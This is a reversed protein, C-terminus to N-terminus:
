YEFTNSEIRDAIHPFNVTPDRLAKVLANWSPTVSQLWKSLMERFCDEVQERCNIKIANLTSEDLGLELGLNYWMCKADWLVRRVTRLNLPAAIYTHVSSGNSYKQECRPLQRSALPLSPSVDPIPPLTPTSTMGKSPSSTSM